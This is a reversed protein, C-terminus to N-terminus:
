GKWADGHWGGGSDVHADTHWVRASRTCESKERIAKVIRELAPSKKQQAQM